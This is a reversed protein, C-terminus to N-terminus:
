FDNGVLVREIKSINQLKADELFPQPRQGQTIHWGKYKGTRVCYRWPILRGNGDKAYIGTGQHVYPAYDLNRFIRGTISIADVSIDSSISARLIGMDVPVNKKAAIEIVLCAKRTRQAQEQIIQLSAKELSAVFVDNNPM